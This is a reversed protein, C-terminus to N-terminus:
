LEHKLSLQPDFIATAIFKRAEDIHWRHEIWERCIEHRLRVGIAQVGVVIGDPDYCIRLLCEAEEDRWMYSQEIGRPMKGYSQWELDFFKASDCLMAPKYSNTRGCLIQALQVGHERGVNWGQRIGDSTEACDGIAYIGKCSSSFEGNVLIGSRCELGAEAALGIAPHMGIAVMVLDADGLDDDCTITTGARVDVGHRCVHDTIMRSEEDPLHSAYVGAERIYWTTPLGYSILIESVESGILGGGIVAAHKANKIALALEDIDSMRTYTLTKRHAGLTIPLKRPESGTALIIVDASLMSGDALFCVKSLSDIRTCTQHVLKIGLRTWEEDHHPKIHKRELQGLSVYMMAPRSFHYPAEDSIVTVAHDSLERITRAAAIGAVGNGIIVVHM